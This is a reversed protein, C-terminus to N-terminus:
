SRKLSEQVTLKRSHITSLGEIGCMKRNRNLKKNQRLSSNLLLTSFDILKHNIIFNFQEVIKRYDFIKVFIPFNVLWISYRYFFLQESLVLCNKECWRINSWKVCNRRPSADTYPMSAYMVHLVSIRKGHIFSLICYLVVSNRICHLLGWLFSAGFIWYVPNWVVYHAARVNYAKPSRYLM